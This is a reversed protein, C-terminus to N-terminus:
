VDEVSIEWGEAWWKQLAMEIGFAEAGSQDEAEITEPADGARLQRTISVKGSGIEGTIVRGDPSVARFRM